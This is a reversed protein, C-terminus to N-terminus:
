IKREDINALMSDDRYRSEFGLEVGEIFCLIGNMLSQVTAYLQNAIETACVAFWGLLQQVSM